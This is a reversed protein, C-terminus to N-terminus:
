RRWTDKEHQALERDEKEQERAREEREHKEKELAWYRNPRSPATDKVNRAHTQYVIRGWQGIQEHPLWISNIAEEEESTVPKEKERQEDCWRRLTGARYWKLIEDHKFRDFITKARMAAVWYLGIGRDHCLGHVRDGVRDREEKTFFFDGAPFLYIPPEGPKKEKADLYTELKAAMKKYNCIDYYSLNSYNKLLFEAFLYQTIDDESLTKDDLFRVLSHAHGSEKEDNISASAM